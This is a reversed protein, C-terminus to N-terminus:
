STVSPFYWQKKKGTIVETASGQKIHIWWEQLVKLVFALVFLIPINSLVPFHVSLYVAIFFNEFYNAFIFLAFRSSNLFFILEGCVRLIFLLLLFNQFPLQAYMTYIVAGGYWWLDLLKDLKEYEDVTLAGRSAFEGDITDLFLAIMISYSPVLFLLFPVTLRCIFSIGYLILSAKNRKM